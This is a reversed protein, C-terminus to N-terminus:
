APPSPPSGVYGRGAPPHARAPLPGLTQERPPRLHEDRRAARHRPPPVAAARAATGAFEGGGLIRRIPDPPGIGRQRLIRPRPDAAVLGWGDAPVDEPGSAGGRESQAPGPLAGLRAPPPLPFGGRGVCPAEGGGGRGRRAGGG